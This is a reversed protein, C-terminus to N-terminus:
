HLQDNLEFRVDADIELKGERVVPDIRMVHPDAAHAVQGVGLPLLVIAFLLVSFLRSIMFKCRIRASM